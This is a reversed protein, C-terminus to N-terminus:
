KDEDEAWVEEEDEDEKDVTLISTEEGPLITSHLTEKKNYKVKFRTYTGQGSMCSITLDVIEIMMGWQNVSHAICNQPHRLISICTIASV